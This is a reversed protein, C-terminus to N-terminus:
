VEKVRPKVFAQSVKIQKRRQFVAYEANQKHFLYPASIPISPLSNAASSNTCSRAKSEFRKDRSSTARTCFSRLVHPSRSLSLTSTKTPTVFWSAAATCNRRSTLQTKSGLAQCSSANTDKMNHYKTSIRYTTNFTMRSACVRIAWSSSTAFCSEPWRSKGVFNRDNNAATTPSSAKVTTPGAISPTGADM